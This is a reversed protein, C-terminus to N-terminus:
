TFGALDEYVPGESTLTSKILKFGAVEFNKKEVKIEKLSQVFAEKDKVFRVRGLTIHPHFRKERKFINQLKEEIKQQLNIISKNDEFGVWVVKIYDESPFVGINTLEVNFPKVKIEKLLDKIKEIESDPVEGLFKITLHFTSVLKIKALDTLIQKQLDKFYGELSHFDIAIFTRM